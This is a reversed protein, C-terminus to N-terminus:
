EVNIDMEDLKKNTSERVNNIENSQGQSEETNTKMRQNQEIDIDQKDIQIDNNTDEVNEGSNERLSMNTNKTAMKTGVSETKYPSELSKEPNTLKKSLSANSDSQKSKVSKKSKFRPSGEQGYLKSINNSGNRFVATELSKNCEDSVENRFVNTTRNQHFDHTSYKDYAKSRDKSYKHESFTRNKGSIRNRSSEFGSSQHPPLNKWGSMMTNGEKIKKRVFKETTKHKVKQTRLPPISSFRIEIPEQNYGIKDYITKPSSTATTLMKNVVRSNWVEGTEDFRSPNTQYMKKDSWLKEFKAKSVNSQTSVLKKSLSINANNIGNM